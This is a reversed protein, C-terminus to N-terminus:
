NTRKLYKEFEDINFSALQKKYASKTRYELHEPDTYFKNLALKYFAFIIDEEKASNELILYEEKVICPLTMELLNLRLFYIAQRYKKIIRDSLLVLVISDLRKLEECVIYWPGIITFEELEKKALELFESRGICRGVFSREFVNNMTTPGSKDIFGTTIGQKELILSLPIDRDYLFNSPNSLSLRHIFKVDNAAALKIIYRFKKILQRKKNVQYFTISVMLCSLMLSSAFISADDYNMNFSSFVNQFGAQIICLFFFYLLLWHPNDKVLDKIMVCLSFTKGKQAEAFPNKESRIKRFKDILWGVLSMILILGLLISSLIISEMETKERIINSSLPLRSKYCQAEFLRWM